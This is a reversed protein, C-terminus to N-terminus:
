QLGSASMFAPETPHLAEEVVEMVIPINLAERASLQM